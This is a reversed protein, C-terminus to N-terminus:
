YKLIILIILRMFCLIHPTKAQKKFNTIDKKKKLTAKKNQFLKLNVSFNHIHNLSNGSTGSETEGIILKKYGYPWKDCLVM